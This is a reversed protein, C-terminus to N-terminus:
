DALTPDIIVKGVVRNEEVLHHAEAAQSLPLIRDILLRIKGNAALELARQREAPTSQEPEPGSRITLRNRYLLRIDLPVIGDGGHTGVTFLRGGPALCAVALGFNEPTGVNEFVVQVGKGDTLAMVSEALSRERYNIGHDAGLSLAAKVRGDAGAGAIVTAGAQKCLQVLCSSVAGGAGMILVMEGPQIEAIRMMGFATPLHRRVATAMAFDVGDPIHVASAASVTAYEAYGGSVPPPLSGAVRDGVEFGTVDPGLEDVVGSPDIGPIMPLKVDLGSEGRRLGVDLTQNVSVAHVKLRIQGARPQPIPVEEIRIVEPGGFEHFVAAKM